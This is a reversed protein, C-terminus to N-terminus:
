MKQITQHGLCEEIKALLGVKIEQSAFNIGIAQELLQDVLVQDANECAAAVAIPTWEVSIMYLEVNQTLTEILARSADQDTQKDRKRRVVTVYM